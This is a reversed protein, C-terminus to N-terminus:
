DSSLTATLTHSLRANANGLGTTEDFFLHDNENTPGKAYKTTFDDAGQGFSVSGDNSLASGAWRGSGADTWISHFNNVAPDSVNSDTGSDAIARDSFLVARANATDRWELGRASPIWQKPPVGPPSWSSGGTGMRNIELMAYSYNTPLVNATGVGVSTDPMTRVSDGPSIVYEPPFFNLEMLIAFRRTHNVGFGATRYAPGAFNVHGISGTTLPQGSSDIGPYWSKNEQAFAFMAQHIGRLQTSNQLQRASQRASSLAPLLIAILLAIISIVVLLEILTFGGRFLHKRM